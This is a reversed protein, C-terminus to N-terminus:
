RYVLKGPSALGVDSEDTDVNSTPVAELGGEDQHINSHQHSSASDLPEFDSDSDHQLRYASGYLRQHEWYTTKALFQNCHQCLRRRKRKPEVVCDSM